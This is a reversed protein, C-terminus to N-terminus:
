FGHLLRGSGGCYWRLSLWGYPAVSIKTVNTVSKAARELFCNGKTPDIRQHWRYRRWSGWRNQQEKWFCNGKTPDIRQHWRYRRWSGWRNQQEKWFCNGKTPDIRQHRGNRRWSGWRNQHEKWFRQRENPRDEPAVWIKTLIRASKTARELLLQRENPQDSTRCLWWCVRQPRFVSTNVFSFYFISECSPSDVPM